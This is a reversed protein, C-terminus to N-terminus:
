RNKNTKRNRIDEILKAFYISKEPELLILKEYCEIAMDYVGQGVYIEALTESVINEPPLDLFINEKVSEEHEVPIIRPNDRIFKDILEESSMEVEDKDQSETENYDELTFYENSFGLLLGDDLPTQAPFDINQEIEKDDDLQFLEESRPKKGLFEFLKKRNAAYLVYVGMIKSYKDADNDRYGKLAILRAQAFWPYESILEEFERMSDPTLREESNIYKYITQLNM